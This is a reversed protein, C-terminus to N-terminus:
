ATQRKLRQIITDLLTGALRCTLALLTQDATRFHMGDRKNLVEIVGLVREGCLIPAALSSSAQFESDGDLWARVRDDYQANNVVAARGHEAVWGAIGYGPPVRHWALKEGPGDGRVLVFVLENTDEDCILLAGHRANVALLLADLAEELAEMAQADSPLSNAAEILKQISDIFQRSGPVEQRLARIQDELRSLEMRATAGRDKMEGARGLGAVPLVVQQGISDGHVHNRSGSPLARGNGM